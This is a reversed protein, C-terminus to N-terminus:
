PPSLEVVTALLDMPKCAALPPHTSAQSSSSFSAGALYLSASLSPVFGALEAGHSAQAPVSGAALPFLVAQCPMAGHRAAHAINLRSRIKPTLTRGQYTPNNPITAWSPVADVWKGVKSQVYVVM